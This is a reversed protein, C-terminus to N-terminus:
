DELTIKLDDLYKNCLKVSRSISFEQRNRLEYAISIIESNLEKMLKLQINLNEYRINDTNTEGIPKIKGILKRLIEHITM